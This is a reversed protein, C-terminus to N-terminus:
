CGLYRVRFKVESEAIKVGNRLKTLKGKLAPIPRDRYADAVSGSRKLFQGDFRFEFDEDSLPTAIFNLRKETVSGSITYDGNGTTIHYEENKGFYHTYLTADGSPTGDINEEVVMEFVDFERFVKPKRGLISYTGRPDFKKPDYDLIFESAAPQSLEPTAPQEPINVVLPEVRQVNPVPPVPPPPPPATFILTTATGISFTALAIVLHVILRMMLFVEKSM